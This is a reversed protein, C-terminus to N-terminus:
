RSCAVAVVAVVPVVAGAPVATGVMGPMRGTAVRHPRMRVMGASVVRAVPVASAVLVVPVAGVSYGAVRVAGVVTGPPRGPKVM